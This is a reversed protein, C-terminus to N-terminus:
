RIAPSATNCIRCILPAPIKDQFCRIEPTGLIRSVSMGSKRSIGARVSLRFSSPTAQPSECLRQHIIGVLNLDTRNSPSCTVTRSNRTWGVSMPLTIPRSPRM